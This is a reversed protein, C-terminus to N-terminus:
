LLLDVPIRGVVQIFKSAYKEGLCAKIHFHLGASVRIIAEHSGSCLVLQAM